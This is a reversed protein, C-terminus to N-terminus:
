QTITIPTVEYVVGLWSIYLKTLGPPWRVELPITVRGNGDPVGHGHGALPDSPPDGITAFLPTTVPGAVIGTVLFTAALTGGSTTTLPGLYTIRAGDHTTVVPEEPAAHRVTALCTLTKVGLSGSVSLDISYTVSFPQGPIGHVRTSEVDVGFPGLLLGPTVSVDNGAPDDSGIGGTVNKVQVQMATGSPDIVAIFGTTGHEIVLPDPDCELGWADDPGLHHDEIEGQAFQGTGDWDQGSIPADTLTARLWVELNGGVLPVDTEITATEGPGLNIMRNAVIWEDVPGAPGLVGQWRGNGDTDALLNFYVIGAPASPSKAAQFAVAVMGATALVNILGDDREDRDIIKADPEVTAGPAELTGLWFRSPDLTRAGNSALLSPFAPDPADGLEYTGATSPPSATGASPSTVPAAACAALVLAALLPRLRSIRSAVPMRM